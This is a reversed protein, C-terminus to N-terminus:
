WIRQSWMAALCSLGSEEPHGDSTIVPTVLSDGLILCGTSSCCVKPYSLVEHGTSLLVDIEPSGAWERRVWSRDPEARWLQGLRTGPSQLAACLWWASVPGAPQQQLLNKSSVCWTSLEWPWWRCWGPCSQERQPLLGAFDPDDIDRLPPSLQQMQNGDAVQGRQDTFGASIHSNLMAKGFINEQLCLTFSEQKSWTTAGSGGGLAPQVSSAWAGSCWMFFLLVVPSALAPTESSAHYSFCYVEHSM